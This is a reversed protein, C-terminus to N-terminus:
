FGYIVIYTIYTYLAPWNEFNTLFSNKGLYGVENWHWLRMFSFTHALSTCFQSCEQDFGHKFTLSVIIKCQKLATVVNLNKVKATIDGKSVVPPSIQKPLIPSVLCHFKHNVTYGYIFCPHCLPHISHFKKLDGVYFLSPFHNNKGHQVMITTTLFCQCM